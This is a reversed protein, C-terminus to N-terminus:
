SAKVHTTVAGAPANHFRFKVGPYAEEERFGPNSVHIRTGKRGKRRSQGSTRITEGIRMAKGDVKSM